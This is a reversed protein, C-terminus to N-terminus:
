AKSLPKHPLHKTDDEGLEEEGEAHNTKEHSVFFYGRENDTVRRYEDKYQDHVDDQRAHNGAHGNLHLHPTTDYNTEERRKM